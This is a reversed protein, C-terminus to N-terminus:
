QKEAIAEEIIQAFEEYTRPNQLQEGDLYFTPTSAVGLQSGINKDRDVRGSANDFDNKYQDIDLQLEQAYDEFVSRANPDQSWEEQKEFLVDHMEWFKGQEAAAESARAADYAHAHSPLPFHRYVVQLKEPYDETLQKVLPYANGCAPCQFDGYEVLTVTGDEAGKIHDEATIEHPTELNATTEDGGQGFFYFVGLLVGVVLVLVIWFSKGM